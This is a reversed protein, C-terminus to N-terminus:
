MFTFVGTRTTIDEARTEPVAYCKDANKGSKHVQRRPVKWITHTWDYARRTSM